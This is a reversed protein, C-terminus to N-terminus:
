GEDRMRQPPGIAALSALLAGTAVDILHHQATYLTSLWVFVAGLLAAWWWRPRDFVVAWAMLCSLSVHLSPAANAPPSDIADMQRYMRSTLDDGLKAENAKWEEETNKSKDLPRITQTPYVVFIVLSAVAVILARRIFWTFVPRRIVVVLLPGIVYPLLYPWTWWPTFPFARDWEIRTDTTSAPGRLKLVTLYLSLCFGFFVGLFIFHTRGGGLGPVRDLRALLRDIWPQNTINPPALHSM